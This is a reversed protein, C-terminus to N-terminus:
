IASRVRRCTLRPFPGAYAKGSIQLCSAVPGYLRDAPAIIPSYELCQSCGSISWLIPNRVPTRCGEGGGGDSLMNSVILDSM